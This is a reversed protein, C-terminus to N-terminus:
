QVTYVGHVYLYPNIRLYMSLPHSFPIRLTSGTAQRPSTRMLATSVFAPISAQTAPHCGVSWGRKRRWKRLATTTGDDVQGTAPRDGRNQTEQCTYYYYQLERSPTACIESGPNMGHRVACADEDSISKKPGLASSFLFHSRRQLFFLICAAAVM